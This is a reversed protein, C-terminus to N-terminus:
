CGNGPYVSDDTDDCDDDNTVYGYPAATEFVSDAADGYGDGDADRYYYRCGENIGGSCNEDIANGCVEAEGPNVDPDTDDCDTGPNPCGEWALDTYGDGDIDYEDLVALEIVERLEFPSAALHEADGKLYPLSLYLQAKTETGLVTTTATIRATIWVASAKAYVLNFQATGNEDTTVTDELTGAASNPPTLIGDANGGRITGGKTPDGTNIFPDNSTGSSDLTYCDWAGFYLLDESYAPSQSLDEDLRLNENVDENKAGATIVPVYEDGSKIWYGDYYTSPWTALSVQAGSVPNGNADAVVVAMPQSYATDGVISEITTGRGLMVSGPEGGIVVDFFDHIVPSSGVVEAWVRVGSPDSGELGSTFTTEAVGLSNTNRVVPSITEGTGTPNEISFVVTANAVPEDGSNTVSASLNISNSVDGVSPAVVSASGQLSLQDASSAPAAIAVTITDSPSLDAADSVQVTAMGANTSQLTAFTTGGSVAAEYIIGGSEVFTGLTTSFLVASQDPANVEIVLTSNVMLTAPDSTPSTIGFSQGPESGGVLITGDFSDTDVTVGAAEITLVVEGQESGGLSLEYTGDSGTLGQANNPTVNGTSKAGNTTVQVAADSIPNGNADNVTVTLTVRDDTNQEVSTRDLSPTITTGTVQVITSESDVGVVRATVTINRNTRDITGARLQVTAAGNADTVATSGSLQGSDAAFLVTVGEMAANSDDLVTATISAFDEGNSEITFANTSVALVAAGSSGDGGGGESVPSCSLLGCLLLLVLSLSWIQKAQRLRM